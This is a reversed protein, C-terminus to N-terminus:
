IKANEKGPVRVNYVGLVAFDHERIQCVRRVQSVKKEFEADEKSHVSTLQALRM